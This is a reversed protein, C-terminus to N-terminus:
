WSASTCRAGARPSGRGWGGPSHQSPTPRQCEPLHDGFGQPLRSVHLQLAALGSLQSSPTTAARPSSPSAAPCPRSLLLMSSVARARSLCCWGLVTVGLDRDGARLTATAIVFRDRPAPAKCFAGADRRPSGHGHWSRSVPRPWLWRGPSLCPGRRPSSFSGGPLQGLPGPDERGLAM